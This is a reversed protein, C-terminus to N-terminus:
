KDVFEAPPAVTTPENSTSTVEVRSHVFWDFGDPTAAAFDIWAQEDFQYDQVRLLGDADVSLTVHVHLLAENVLVATTEADVEAFEALKTWPLDFRFTTVPIGHVVDDTATLDTAAERIEPTVVDNYMQLHEVVDMAVASPERLTREWPAGFTESPRYSYENTMIRQSTMNRVTGQADFAFSAIPTVYDAEATIVINDKFPVGGDYGVQRSTEVFTAVRYSPRVYVTDPLSAVATVAPTANDLTDPTTITASTPVSADLDSDSTGNAAHDDFTTKAFYGGAGAGAVALLVLFMRWARRKPKPAHALQALQPPLIASSQLGVRGAPAPEVVAPAAPPLRPVYADPLFPGGPTTRTDEQSTSMETQEAQECMPM